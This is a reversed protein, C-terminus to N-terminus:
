RTSSTPSPSTRGALPIAAGALQGPYGFGDFREHHTLTITAATRVARQQLTDARDHRLRAGSPAGHRRARRAHASREQAPHQGSIGLKGVDHLQSALEILRAGPEDVGLKRALLGSFAAVRESHAATEGSHQEVARAM